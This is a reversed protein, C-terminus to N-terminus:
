AHRWFYTGGFVNQQQEIGKPRLEPLQREVSIGVARGAPVVRRDPPQDVIFIKAAHGM